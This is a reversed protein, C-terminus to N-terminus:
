SSADGCHRNHVGLTDRLRLLGRRIRAKITGLPENLSAAVEAHTWGNHVMLEIAARQEGPLAQMATHVRDDLDLAAVDDAAASASAATEHATSAAAREHLNRRRQLQRVRDHARNRGMVVLWSAVRGLRPNYLGAKTPLHLFMDHLIDEAEAPDHVISVIVHFVVERFERYLAALAEKEGAGARALLALAAAQCADSLLRHHVPPPPM